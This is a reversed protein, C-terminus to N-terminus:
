SMERYRSPQPRLHCIPLPESCVSLALCHHGTLAYPPELLDIQGNESGGGGQLRIRDGLDLDGEMQKMKDYLQQTEPTPAPTLRLRADGGPRIGAQVAYSSERPSIAALRCRGNHWKTARLWGERQLQLASLHILAVAQILCYLSSRAEKFKRREKRPLSRLFASSSLLTAAM